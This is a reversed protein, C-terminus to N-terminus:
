TRKITVKDVFLTLRDFHQYFYGEDFFRQLIKKAAAKSKIETFGDSENYTVYKIREAPTTSHRIISDMKCFSINQEAIIKDESYFRVNCGDPGYINDMVRRFLLRNRLTLQIM